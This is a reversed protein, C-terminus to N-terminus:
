KRFETRIVDFLPNDKRPPSPNRGEDKAKWYEGAWVEPVQKMIMDM